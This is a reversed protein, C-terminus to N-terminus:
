SDAGTSACAMLPDLLTGGLFHRIKYDIADNEFDGDMPNVNATGPMVGAGPGITGEGIAVQNPLKMFLEPRPRSRLFSLQMAPRGNNPNAILYWAHTGSTTDVIPLYYNLAPTVLSRIFNGSVLRTGSTIGTTSNTVTLGGLTNLQVETANLVSMVTAHIQPPYVLVFNEISIPQGDLDKQQALLTMAAALANWSFRPNNNVGYTTTLDPLNTTNLLNKNGNAFFTANPGTSAAYLKTARSEETRRAARGLLAPTDKLADLDDNVIVEFAFDVRAGFKYLQDTYNSSVRKRLPYESMQELGNPGSGSAQNSDPNIPGDLPASGRDFRFQKAQRFDPLTARYCYQDWTYPTEAYNALVSRNLIDGFYGSFDSMTMAEQLTVFARKSGNMAAEVLRRAADLNSQYERRSIPRGHMRTMAQDINYLGAERMRDAVEPTVGHSVDGIAEAVVQAGEPQAGDYTFGLRGNDRESERLFNVFSKM